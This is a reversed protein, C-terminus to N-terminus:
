ADVTVERITLETCLAFIAASAVRFRRGRFTCVKEGRYADRGLTLVYAPRLHNDKADFGEDLDIRRLAAPVARVTEQPADFIGHAEPDEQILGLQEPDRGGFDWRTVRVKANWRTPVNAPIGATPGGSVYYSGGFPEPLDVRCGEWAHADGKRLAITYSTRVGRPELLDPVVGSEPEGVLVDDVATPTETYVPSGYADTGTQTREYLTVTTGRIM